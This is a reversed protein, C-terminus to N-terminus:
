DNAMIFVPKEDNPLSGKVWAILSSRSFYLGSLQAPRQTKCSWGSPAFLQNTQYHPINTLLQMRMKEVQQPPKTNSSIPEDWPEIDCLIFAAQWVTLVDVGRWAL